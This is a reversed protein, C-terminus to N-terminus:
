RVLQCWFVKSKSKYGKVAHVYSPKWIIDIFWIQNLDSKFKEFSAMKVNWGIKCSSRLHGKVKTCSTQSCSCILTWMNYWYVLNPEFQDEDKWIFGNECKWGIKCSMHGKVKIYSRQGWWCVLTGMNCRHGLKPQFGDFCTSSLALTNVRKWSLCWVDVSLPVFHDRHTKGALLTPLVFIVAFSHM